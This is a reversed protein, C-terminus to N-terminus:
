KLWIFNRCYQNTGIPNFVNNNNQAMASVHKYMESHGDVHLMPAKRQHVFTLRRGSAWAGSWWTVPVRTGATADTLLGFASPHKFKRLVYWVGPSASSSSGWIAVDGFNQPVDARPYSDPYYWMGYINARPRTSSGSGDSLTKGDYFNLKTCCRMRSIPLYNGEVLVSYHTHYNLDTGRTHQIIGDFDAAYQLLACGYQKTQTLCQLGKANERAQGLSPLLMSALIAIIAIVVLLEILTFSQQQKM